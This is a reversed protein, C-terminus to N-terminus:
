AVFSLAERTPFQAPIKKPVTLTLVGEHIEAQLATYDLNRGLRLSLSYDRQVSELNLAGFNVRVFHSKRATVLLDPGRTTIEVGAADVGPVYVVVKLADQLEQCDYHPKRADVTNVTADPSRTSRSAPKLPHIITNM